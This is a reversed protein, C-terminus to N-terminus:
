QHDDMHLLLWYEFAQHSYAVFFKQKEALMIASNFNMIQSPNSPKPDADFVCWIEDYKKM